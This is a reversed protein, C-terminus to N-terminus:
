ERREPISPQPFESTDLDDSIFTDSDHYQIPKLRETSNQKRRSGAGGSKQPMKFTLPLQKLTLIKFPCRGGSKWASQPPEVAVPQWSVDQETIARRILRIQQDGNVQSKFGDFATIHFFNSGDTVNTVGTGHELPLVVGPSSGTAGQKIHIRFLCLLAEGCGILWDSQNVVKDAPCGNRAKLQAHRLSKGPHTLRM